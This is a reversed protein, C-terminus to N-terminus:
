YEITSLCEFYKLPLIILYAHMPQSADSELLLLLLFAELSKTSLQLAKCSFIILREIRPYFTCIARQMSYIQM